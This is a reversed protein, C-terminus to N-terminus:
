GFRGPVLTWGDGTVEDAGIEAAPGADFRAMFVTQEDVPTEAPAAAAFVNLAAFAALAMSPVRRMLRVESVNGVRDSRKPVRREPGASARTSRGASGSSTIRRATSRSWRRM